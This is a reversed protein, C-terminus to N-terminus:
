ANSLGARDNENGVDIFCILLKSAMLAKLTYMIKEEPFASAEIPTLDQEKRQKMHERM